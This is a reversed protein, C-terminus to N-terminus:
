ARDRRAAFRNVAAVVMDVQEETMQPHCPLSLCTRAHRESNALGKRDRALSVCLEERHIAVPYHISTQVGCSQLHAQLRDRDECTVVFLHNVHAELEQAAGLMDVAPNKLQARYAEAIERRRRTFAPLWKLRRSLMAAQIEDLRSNMGLEPHEYRPSQGYNRLRRAREAISEDNSVLMGGDGPAGLNKTPYFSYAGVLGFSGAVRLQWNAMHAQACDEVLAIGHEACLDLWAQMNRLQGYLHVLVVARTRSTLCRRASDLSLLASEHEIDALVPEAGARMVALVTAFATM